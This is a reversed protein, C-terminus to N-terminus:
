AARTGAARPRRAAPRRAAPRRHLWWEAVLLNVVWSLWVSAGVAAQLMLAEDGGYATDLGASAVALCLPLWVRNAVISWALAFGRLMWERHPGFRRQRAARYGAVTCGLWLAAALANGSVQALGQTGAFSVVLALVAGPVAAAVYLRGSFRHLDPRRRRLWPWVQLCSTTLVVTGLLIHGMLLAYHLPFDARVAVRSEAPDFTLYPPLSFALFLVCLVALPAIWPRRWWARPRPAPRAASPEPAPGPPGPDPAPPAHDPATM